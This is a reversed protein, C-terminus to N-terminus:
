CRQSEYDQWIALFQKSKPEYEPYFRSTLLDYTLAACWLKDAIRDFAFDGTHLPCKHQNSLYALHEEHGYRHHNTGYEIDRLVMQQVLTENLNMNALHDSILYDRRYLKGLAQIQVFWFTNVKDRPWAPHHIPSATQPLSLLPAQPDQEFVFVLDFRMGNNFVIRYLSNQSAFSFGLCREENVGYRDIRRLYDDPSVPDAPNLRVCVSIDADSCFDHYSKEVAQELLAPSYTEKPITIDRIKVHSTESLSFVRQIFSDLEAQFIEKSIFM